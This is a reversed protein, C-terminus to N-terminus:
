RASAVKDYDVWSQGYQKAKEDFRELTKLFEAVRLQIRGDGSVLLSRTHPFYSMCATGGRGSWEEPSIASQIMQTLAAPNAVAFSVAHSQTVPNQQALLMLESVRSELAATRQREVWWGCGMAALAVLLFLERLSCKM